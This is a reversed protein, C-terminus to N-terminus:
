IGVESFEGVNLYMSNWADTYNGRSEGLTTSGSQTPLSNPIYTKFDYPDKIMQNSVTTISGYVKNDYKGPNGIKLVVERYLAKEIHYNLFTTLQGDSINKLDEDINNTITPKDIIFLSKMVTSLNINYGNVNLGNFTSPINNYIRELELIRENDIEVPGMSLEVFKEFTTEGRNVKNINYKTDVECFNLFYSEFNDLMEKTFVGFIDDISSYQLTDSNSINFPQTNKNEPDINKIYQLPTPKNVMENSFYGFNSSAWFSRVSGNYISNNTTLNQKYKGQNNFCEFEAQNFKVDGFSPIILIKDEQNERFDYNGKINFYQSWSNMNYQGRTDGSSIIKDISGNDSNGIKLNKETQATQIEDSTYSTFIDKKTFYYYLENIVKPYFGNEVKKTVYPYTINLVENPIPSIDEVITGSM